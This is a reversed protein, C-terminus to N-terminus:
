RVPCSGSACEADDLGINGDEISNILTTSAIMADYQEKTIEQVKKM